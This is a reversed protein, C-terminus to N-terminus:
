RPWRGRRPARALALHNVVARGLLQNAVRETARRRVDLHGRHRRERLAEHLAAPVQAREQDCMTSEGLKRMRSTSSFQRSVRISSLEQLREAEARARSGREGRAWRARRRLGVSGRACRRRRGAARACGSRRSCPSGRRRRGVLERLPREDAECGASRCGSGGAARRREAIPEERDLPQRVGRASASMAATVCAPM